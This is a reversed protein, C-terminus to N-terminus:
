LKNNLSENQFYDTRNIIMTNIILISSLNFNIKNNNNFEKENQSSEM